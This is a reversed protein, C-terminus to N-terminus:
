YVEDEETELDDSEVYYFYKKYILKIEEDQIKNYKGEVRLCKSTLLQQKITAQKIDKFISNRKLYDTFCKLKICKNKDVFQNKFWTIFKDEQKNTEIKDTTDDTAASLYLKEIESKDKKHENYYKLLETNNNLYMYFCFANLHDKDERNYKDLVEDFEKINITKRTLIRFRKSLAEADAKLYFMSAVNHNTNIIFDTNNKIDRPKEKKEEITLTQQQTYMKLTYIFADIEKVVKPMEEVVTLHGAMYSGNLNKNLNRIDATKIDLFPSLIQTIYTKLADYASENENQSIISRYNTTKYTIKQALWSIYFKYDEEYKFTQRLMNLLDKTEREQQPLQDYKMKLMMIEFEKKDKFCILSDYLDDMKEGSIKLDKRMSNKNKYMNIEGNDVFYIQEEDRTKFCNYLIKSIKNIKKGRNDSKLSKFDYFNHRIFEDKEYKDIYQGIKQIIYKYEKLKDNEEDTRSDVSIEEIKKKLTTLHNKISQLKYLCTYDRIYVFKSKFKAVNLDPKILIIEEIFEDETLPLGDIFWKLKQGFEFHHLPKLISSEQFFEDITIYKFISIDENEQEDEEQEETKKTKTKTQKEQKTMQEEPKPIYPMEFDENNACIVCNEIIFKKDEKNENMYKVIEHNAKRPKTIDYKGSYPLRFIQQQGDENKYVSLDFGLPENDDNNPKFLLDIFDKIYGKLSHTKFCIGKVYIHISVLKTFNDENNEFVKIDEHEKLLDIVEDPANKTEAIGIVQINQNINKFDNIIEYIFDLTKKFGEQNYESEKIDIDFYPRIYDYIVREYIYVGEKTLDLKMVDNLTLYCNNVEHVAATGKQSIMFIPRNEITTLDLQKLKDYQKKIMDNFDKDSKCYGKNLYSTKKNTFYKKNNDINNELYEQYDHKLEEIKEIWRRCTNMKIQDSM